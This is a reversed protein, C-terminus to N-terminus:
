ALQFVSQSALQFALRSDSQFALRSDSHFVQLDLCVLRVQWLYPMLYYLIEIIQIVPNLRLISHFISSLSIKTDMSVVMFITTNKMEAHNWLPLHM